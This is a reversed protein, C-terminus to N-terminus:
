VEFADSLVGKKNGLHLSLRRFTPCVKVVRYIRWSMTAASTLSADMVLSDVEERRRSRIHLNSFAANEVRQPQLSSLLAM